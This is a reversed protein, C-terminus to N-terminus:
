TPDKTIGMVKRLVLGRVQFDRHRVRSNYHKAMHDQYRALRQEVTARVEDDLDLQLRMAENNKREDHNDVRYSTLRVETPIVAESGYTLRFPTEETPTRATTQYAWLISPM